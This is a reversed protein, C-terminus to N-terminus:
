CLPEWYASRGWVFSDSIPISCICNAFCSSSPVLIAQQPVMFTALVFFFFVDRGKFHIKSFGYAAMSSIVVSVCVTMVSVKISNWYYLIFPNSGFWVESYNEVGHFPSPIWEVPYKFVDLETKMSASLSWLFPMLFVIGFAFMLLTILGKGWRGKLIM